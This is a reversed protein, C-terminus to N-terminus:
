KQTGITYSYIIYVCMLLTLVGVNHDWYLSCWVQAGLLSFFYGGQAGLVSLACGGQAGLLSLPCGGQAGLLSLCFVWRTCGASLSSMWRTCGASLCSVWRTCGASLPCGGQAGLLSLVGVKHVWCLSVSCGGQAGLLSLSLVGVKHVWCLSVSCGGQAGLLSLSLVGVKHVWCLSLCFVWRTCGASLPCGGQAGMRVTRVELRVHRAAALATQAHLAARAGPSRSAERQPVPVQLVGSYVLECAYAPENTCTYLAIRPPTIYIIFLYIIHKYLAADTFYM